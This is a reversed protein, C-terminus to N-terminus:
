PSKGEVVKVDEIWYDFDSGRTLVGAEVQRGEALKALDPEKPVPFEMTMPEMWVKGAANAIPGHKITVIRHPADLRVVVGKLRYREVTGDDVGRAPTSRRCGALVICLAAVGAMWRM